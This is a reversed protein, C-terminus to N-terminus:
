EAAYRYPDDMSWDVESDRFFREMASELPPLLVGRESTLATNLAPQDTDPATVRSPDFGAREAMAAGFDRWSTEGPNAIHWLGTGGDILLDLVGHVLDPVYTPSVVDTGAEVDRGTTLTNLVSWVFNYQDWPGFFASTRVVLAGPHMSLVRREAEAKSAGYVGAPNVADGERYARGQRGDFVLDSSFTVLPIGAKACAEALIEAGVANARFCLDPEREADAVRVYGAANIVAWPQQCALAAAVSDRDAIDMEARGLLAHDLGRIDAIRSIARGLTGTAGTILLQRPSGVLRCANSARAPPRYFRIDRKWWGARDLV